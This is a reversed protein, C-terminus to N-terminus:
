FFRTYSKSVAAASFKLIPFIRAAFMQNSLFHSPRTMRVRDIEVLAAIYPIKRIGKRLIGYPIGFQNALGLPRYLPAALPASGNLELRLYDARATDDRNHKLM